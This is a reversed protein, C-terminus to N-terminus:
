EGRRSLIEEVTVVDQPTDVGIGRDTTQIVHIKVGRELARLQELQEIQEL